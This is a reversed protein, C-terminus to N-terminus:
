RRDRVDGEERAALKDMKLKQDLLSRARRTIAKAVLRAAQFAQAANYSSRTAAARSAAAARQASPDPLVQRLCRSTRTAARRTSRSRRGQRRGQRRARRAAAGQLAPHRGPDENLTTCQEENKTAKDGTCISSSSSRFTPRWTTSARRATRRVHSASSTSARSISSRRTSRRRRQRPLEDRHRPLRDGSRGLAAGRLVHARARVEGRRAAGPGGHRERGAQHLLHLPQLRQVMGKQNDTMSRRSRGRTARGGEQESRRARVRSTAPARANRAARTRRRRLHEPLLAGRRVRSRGAEPAKPNEAVVADFAPGCKAWDKQFYLLDAMAYKIKYITPWDEKVIRPFEFTAFEDAKWTDVVQKYLQAALAMTKADGTGRQGQSGVAELHWAMATETSSRRPRTRASRSRTPRTIAPRSSTTSRSRTTSSQKVIADKNGSKM